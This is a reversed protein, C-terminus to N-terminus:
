EGILEKLERIRDPTQLYFPHHMRGVEILEKETPEKEKVLLALEARLPKLDTVEVITTTKTITDKDKVISVEM